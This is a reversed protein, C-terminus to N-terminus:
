SPPPRGSARLVTLGQGATAWSGAVGIVAIASTPMPVLRGALQSTLDEIAPNHGILIVTGLADPLEQVLALLENGTAAYVRDDITTRPSAGLEASVLRWTSRARRAPSVIACDISDVNAKLWQGAEPAQRRGRKAVPRNIDDDDGSWDSKAHRLLILTRESM